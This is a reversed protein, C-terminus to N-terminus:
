TKDSSEHFVFRKSFIYNLLIVVVSVAVKSVMGEIGFLTQRLGCAVLVPVGVMELVGTVLRSSVFKGFEPWVVHGAWSNSHFVWRKNTVFAFVVALVWSLCNSVTVTLTLPCVMALLYSFVSYSVWSVVTTMVGWFLYCIVRRYRVFIGSKESM